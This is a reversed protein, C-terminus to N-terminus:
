KVRIHDRIKEFEGEKIGKVKMIEEISNFNGNQNRYDVIAQSKVPGIGFLSDLQEASATNINIREAPNLKGVSQGTPSPATGSARPGTERPPQSSSASASRGSTRKAASSSGFSIKDKLADIKSPGLGNVKELDTLDHYPRGDIIRQALAPGIGPLSQLREADASNVNVKGSTKAASAAPPTSTTTSNGTKSSKTSRKSSGASDGFTIRDQIAKVKAKSLGSVEELDALSHYPRGAIIKQASAPGVGPLSELAAQDATNVNIANPPPQAANLPAILAGVGLLLTGLWTSCRSNSNLFFM